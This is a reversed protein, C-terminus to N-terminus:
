QLFFVQMKCFGKKFCLLEFLLIHFFGCILQLGFCVCFAFGFIFIFIFVDDTPGNQLCEVRGDIRQM